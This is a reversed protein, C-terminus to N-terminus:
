EQRASLEKDLRRYHDLRMWEDSTSVNSMEVCGTRLEVAQTEVRTIQAPDAVAFCVSDSTVLQGQPRWRVVEIRGATQFTGAQDQWEVEGSATMRILAAEAPIASVGALRLQRDGLQLGPVRDPLLCFDGRRTLVDAGDASVMRFMWDANEPLAAHLPNLTTAIPGIDFNTVSMGDPSEGLIRHGRYGPVDANQLNAITLAIASGNEPTNSTAAPVPFERSLNSAALLASGAMRKQQLVFRLEDDDFGAFEDAWVEVVDAPSEPFYERILERVSGRAVVTAPQAASHSASRVRSSTESGEGAGTEGASEEIEDWEAHAAPPLESALSKAWPFESPDLTRRSESNIGSEHGPSAPSQPLTAPGSRHSILSKRLAEGGAVGAYLLALALLLVAAVSKM